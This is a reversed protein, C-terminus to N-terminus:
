GFFFSVQDYEGHILWIFSGCRFWLCHLVLVATVTIEVKYPRPPQYPETSRSLSNNDNPSFKPASTGSMYGSPRPFSGSGLLGDHEPAQWGRRGPNIYHKGSDAILTCSNLELHVIKFNLWCVLVM